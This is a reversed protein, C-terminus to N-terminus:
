RIRSGGDAVLREDARGKTVRLGQGPRVGARWAGRWGAARPDSRADSIARAGIAEGQMM